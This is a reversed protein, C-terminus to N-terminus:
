QMQYPAISQHHQLSQTLMLIHQHHERLMQTCLQQVAPNSSNHAAVACQKVLLDENSISDSIYDLEKGSLPQHHMMNNHM